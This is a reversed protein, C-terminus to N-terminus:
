EIDHVIARLQPALAQPEFMKRGELINECQQKYRVLPFDRLISPILSRMEEYSDCLYGIDGMKKFCYEVYSNRLYIGPKVHSLADLFSTSAGYNYIRTATTGVAYTLSSARQAYEEISLPTYSVGKVADQGPISAAADQQNLFGVMVFECPHLSAERQVETALHCFVDFGGKSSAGFYGFRVKQSRSIDPPINNNNWLCPIELTRFNSAVSPLTNLLSNYVLDSLALYRLQKPHPMRLVQRLRLLWSWPKRPQRDSISKLIGHPIALVPIRTGKLYMILKTFFLGISTISCLVLFRANQSSAVRIVHRSLNLEGALLKKVGLERPPMASEQWKIRPEDVQVEQALAKRVWSLHEKEGMFTAQADPYALLVTYLLAANFNSHEFGLCQPECLIIQGNM